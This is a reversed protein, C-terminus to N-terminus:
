AQPTGRSPCGGHGTTVAPELGWRVEGEAWLAAALELALRLGVPASDGDDEGVERAEGRQGLAQVGLVDAGDLTVEELLHGRRDLLVAAEDLLENAVGDHRDKARRHGVLVVGLAGEAGRKGHLLPHRREVAAPLCAEARREGEVDADVGPRDDRPADAGVLAAGVGDRAVDHVRGRAELRPM